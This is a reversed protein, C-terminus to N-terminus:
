IKAEAITPCSHNGERGLRKVRTSLTTPLCQNTFSPSENHNDYRPRYYIHLLLPLAMGNYAEVPGSPELLSLSGSKLVITVYLHYPKDARCV